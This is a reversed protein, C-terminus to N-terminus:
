VSNTTKGAIAVKLKQRQTLGFSIAGISAALNILGSPNISGTSGIINVADLLSQKVADQKDLDEERAKAQGVIYNLENQLESRNVMQGTECLSKVKSECGYSWFILSSLIAAAILYWHNDNAFKLIASIM